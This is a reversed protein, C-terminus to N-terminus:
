FQRCLGTLIWDRLLGDNGFNQFSTALQILSLVSLQYSISRQRALGPWRRGFVVAVLSEEVSDLFGLQSEGGFSGGTM